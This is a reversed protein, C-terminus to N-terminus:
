PQVYDSARGLAGREVVSHRPAGPATLFKNKPVLLFRPSIHMM